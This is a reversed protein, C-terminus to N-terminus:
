RLLVAPAPLRKCVHGRGGLRPQSCVWGRMFGGPRSVDWDQMDVFTGKQLLFAVAGMHGGAAALHLPAEGGANFSDAETDPQQPKIAPSPTVVAHGVWWGAVPRFLLVM